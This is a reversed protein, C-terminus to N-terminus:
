VVRNDNDMEKKEFFGALSSRFVFFGRLKRRLNEFETV